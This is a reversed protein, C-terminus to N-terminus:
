FTFGPPMAEARRGSQSSPDDVTPETAGVLNNFANLLGRVTKAFYPQAEFFQWQRGATYDYEPRICEGTLRTRQCSKVPHREAFCLPKLINFYIHAIKSSTLKSLTADTRLCNLFADDCDCHSRTFAADNVLDHKTEGALINDPCNDHDRCCEDTHAYIGIDDYSRATAGRGCWKTGPFVIPSVDDTSNSSDTAGLTSNTNFDGDPVFNISDTDNEGVEPMTVHPREKFVCRELLLEFQIPNLATILNQRTRYMWAAESEIFMHCEDRYMEIVRSGNASSYYRFPFGNQQQNATQSTALAVALLPM